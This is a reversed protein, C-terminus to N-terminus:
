EPEKLHYSSGGCFDRKGTKPNIETEYKEFHLDLSYRGHFYEPYIEIEFFQCTVLGGNKNVSKSAEYREPEFFYVNKRAKRYRGFIRIWLEPENKYDFSISDPTLYVDITEYRSFVSLSYLQHFVESIDHDRKKYKRGPRDALPILHTEALIVPGPEEKENDGIGAWVPQAMLLLALFGGGWFRM